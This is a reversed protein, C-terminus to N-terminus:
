QGSWGSGACKDTGTWTSQGFVRNKEDVCTPMEQMLAWLSLASADYGELHSITKGEPGRLATIGKKHYRHIIISLGGVEHRRLLQHLEKHKKSILSFFVDSPLTKFLYRLTLGPVGIADKLMDLGM